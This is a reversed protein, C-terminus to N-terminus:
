VFTSSLMERRDEILDPFFSDMRKKCINHIWVRKRKRKQKEEEDILLCSIIIEAESDSV